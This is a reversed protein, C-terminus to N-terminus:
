IRWLHVHRRWLLRLHDLARDVQRHDLRLQGLRRPEPLEALLVRERRGLVPREAHREGQRLSRLLQREEQCRQRLWGRSRPPASPLNETYSRLVPPVNAM